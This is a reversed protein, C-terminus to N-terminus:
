PVRWHAVVLMIDVINIVCDETLDYRSDYNPTNPDDDPDPDDCSTRWRSAVLMIDDVDVDGDSDLDYNIIVTGNTTNRFVSLGEFYADTASTFALTTGDTAAKARFEISCLRFTSTPPTQTFSAGRGHTLTGDSNGFDSYLETDLSSSDGTISQVELYTPDFTMDADVTDVPQGNPHVYIEWVFTDKVPVTKSIPVVAVDVTAAQLSTSEAQVRCGALVGSVVLCVTLLSAARAWFGRYQSLRSRV